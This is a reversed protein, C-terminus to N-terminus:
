EGKQGMSGVNRRCTTGWGHLLANGTHREREVLVAKSDPKKLHRRNKGGDGKQTEVFGRSKEGAGKCANISIRIV